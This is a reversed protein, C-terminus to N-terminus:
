HKSSPDTKNGLSVGLCGLVGGPRGVLRFYVDFYRQKNMKIMKKNIKLNIEILRLQTKSMYNEIEIHMSSPKIETHIAWFIGFSVEIYVLVSFICLIVSIHPSGSGTAVM